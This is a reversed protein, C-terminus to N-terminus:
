YKRKAPEISVVVLEKKHLIEALKQKQFWCRCYASKVDTAM